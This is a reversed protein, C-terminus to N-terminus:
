PNALIAFIRATPAEIRRSVEILKRDLDMTWDENQGEVEARVHTTEHLQVNHDPSSM